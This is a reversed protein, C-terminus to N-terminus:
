LRTFGEYRDPMGNNVIESETMEETVTATTLVNASSLSIVLVPIDITAAMQVETENSPDIEMRYIDDPREEDVNVVVLAAAGSSQALKAMEVGSIGMGTNTMIVVNGHVADANRLKDHRGNEEKEEEREEEKEEQEEWVGNIPDALIPQTEVELLAADSTQPGFAAVAADLASIIASHGWELVAAEQQSRIPYITYNLDLLLSSSSSKNSQPVTGYVTTPQVCAVLAVLLIFQVRSLFSPISCSKLM